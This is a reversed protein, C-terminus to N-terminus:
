LSRTSGILEALRALIETHRRDMERLFTMLDEHQRATQVRISEVLAQTDGHQRASAERAAQIDERIAEVLAQTDGHQRASAERAAQIDERIAEVTEHIARLLAMADGHQRASSERIAEILARTDEHQRASAERIERLLRRNERWNYFFGYVTLVLGLLSAFIGAWGAIELAEM